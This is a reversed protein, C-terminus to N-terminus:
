WMISINLFLDEFIKVFEYDLNRYNDILKNLEAIYTDDTQSVTEKIDGSYDVKQNGELTTNTDNTNVQSPKNLPNPLNTKPTDYLNATNGSQENSSQNISSQRAELYERDTVKGVKLILDKDTNYKEYAIEFRPGHERFLLKMRNEFKGYISYGIKHCNYKMNFIDVITAKHQNLNPYLSWEPLSSFIDEGIFDKLEEYTVTPNGLSNYEDNFIWM